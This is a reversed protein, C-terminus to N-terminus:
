RKALKSKQTKAKTLKMQIDKQLDELKNLRANYLHFVRLFNNIKAKDSRQKSKPKLKSIYELTRKYGDVDNARCLCVLIQPYVVGGMVFRDDKHNKLFEKLEKTYATSRFDSITKLVALYLMFDKKDKATKLFTKIFNQGKRNNPACLIPIFYILEKKNKAKFYKMAASVYVPNEVM